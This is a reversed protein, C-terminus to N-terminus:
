SRVGLRLVLADRWFLHRVPGVYHRAAWPRGRYTVRLTTHDNQFCAIMSPSWLPADLARTALAFLTQETFHDDRSSAARLHARMTEDRLLPGRLFVVGTNVFPTTALSTGGRSAILPDYAPQFDHCARLVIEGEAGGLAEAETSFDRLWLVDTDCYLTPGSLGALVVAAFKLGVASREAFAEVDLLRRARADTMVVDRTVVTTEAPWWALERALRKPSISGDSVVRLVPLRSWSQSMSRLMQQLLGAQRMGTVTILGFSALPSRRPKRPPLASVVGEAVPGLRYALSDRVRRALSAGVSSRNM